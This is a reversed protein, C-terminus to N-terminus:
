LYHGNYKQIRSTRIKSIQLTWFSNKEKIGLILLLNVSIFFDMKEYSFLSKIMQLPNISILSKGVNTFILNESFRNKLNLLLDVQNLENGIMM